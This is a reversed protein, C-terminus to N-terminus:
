VTTALNLDAPTMFLKANGSALNQTDTNKSKLKQHMSYLQVRQQVDPVSVNLGGIFSAAARMLKMGESDGISEAELKANEAKTTILATRQQELLIEAALAAAKVENSSEQVQLLNIRNISESIIQQLILGTSAEVPAFRTLEMSSITVGRDVYFGDAAQIKYADNTINGFSAMFKAFPVKSVAQILASRSHHWVDGEPDSTTNMMKGVSSIKWFITGDLRLKVNDYTPVEYSFFIKRSRLDITTVETKSVAAEAGTSKPVDSFDSWMMKV